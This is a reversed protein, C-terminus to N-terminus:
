CVTEKEERLLFQYRDRNYKQGPRFSCCNCVTQREKEIKKVQKAVVIGNGKLVAFYKMIVVQCGGGKPGDMFSM